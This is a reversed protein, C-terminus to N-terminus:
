EASVDANLWSEWLLANQEEVPLAEGRKRAEQARRLGVAVVESLRDWDWRCVTQVTSVHIDELTPFVAALIVALPGFGGEGLHLGNLVLTKLPHSSISEGSQSFTSALYKALAALDLPVSVGLHSLRPCMRVFAFLGDLTISSTTWWREPTLSLEELLPLAHALQILDADNISINTPLDWYLAHISNLRLLPSLIDWSLSISPVPFRRQSVPSSIRLHTLVATAKGTIVNVIREMDSASPVDYFRICLSSPILPLNLLAPIVSAGRPVKLHLTKLNCSVLALDRRHSSPLQGPQIILSLHHLTSLHLVHRFAHENLAPIVLKRLCPLARVLESIQSAMHEAPQAFEAEDPDIDGQDWFARESIHSFVFSQLRACHSPILSLFDLLSAADREDKRSKHTVTISELHQVLLPYYPRLRDAGLRGGDAYDVILERLKPFMASAEPEPSLLWHELTYVDDSDLKNGINLSRIRRSYQKLNARHVDTLGELRVWRREIYVPPSGDETPARRREFHFYVMPKRPLVSLLTAISVGESWLEDLAPGRFTTCTRALSALSKERSSGSGLQECILVLIDAVDLAPHM